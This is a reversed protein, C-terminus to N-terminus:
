APTSPCTQPTPSGGARKGIVQDIYQLHMSTTGWTGCIMGDVDGKHLLM